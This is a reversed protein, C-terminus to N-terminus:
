SPHQQVLIANCTRCSQMANTDSEQQPCWSPMMSVGPRGIGVITPKLSSSLGLLACGGKTHHKAAENKDKCVHKLQVFGQDKAHQYVM